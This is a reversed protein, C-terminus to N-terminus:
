PWTNRRMCQLTTSHRVCSGFQCANLLNNEEDHRQVMKLIVKEFLKGM